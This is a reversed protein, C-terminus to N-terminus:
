LDNDKVSQRSSILIGLFPETCWELHPEATSHFEEWCDEKQIRIQFGGNAMGHEHALAYVKILFANSEM